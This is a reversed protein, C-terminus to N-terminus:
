VGYGGLVTVCGIKTQM